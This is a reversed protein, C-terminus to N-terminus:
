KRGCYIQEEELYYKVMSDYDKKDTALNTFNYADGHSNIVKYVLEKNTKVCNQFVYIM